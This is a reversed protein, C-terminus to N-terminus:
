IHILSLQQWLIVGSNLGFGVVVDKDDVAIIRSRTEILDKTTSIKEQWFPRGQQLDIATINGQYSASVLVNNTVVSKGEIDVIRELESSGENITVPIELRISGSDPYIM